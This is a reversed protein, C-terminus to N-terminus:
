EFKGPPASARPPPPAFSLADPWFRNDSKSCDVIGKRCLTERWEYKLFVRSRAQPEAEFAVRVAREDRRDGYGTGAESRAAKEADRAGASREAAGAVAPSPPEASPAEDAARERREQERLLAQSEKERYVAVAIVGRASRDGFAEAYSDAWDTFYFEHVDALSTRWGSYDETDWPGLVYMPEGRELDSRAGSIINRGDVAVVLGLREGSRNTVRIRYHAGREAQLWARYIRSEQRVPLQSFASGHEDLIEVSIDAPRSHAQALASLAVSAALATLKWVRRSM